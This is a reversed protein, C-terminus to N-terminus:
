CVVFRNFSIKFNFLIDHFYYDFNNEFLVQFYKWTKYYKCLGSTWKKKKFKSINWTPIKDDHKVHYCQALKDNERFFLKVILIDQRRLLLLM